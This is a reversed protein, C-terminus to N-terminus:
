PARRSADPNRLRRIESELRRIRFLAEDGSARIRDLMEAVVGVLFVAGLGRELKRANMGERITYFSGVLCDKMSVGDSLGVRVTRTVLAESNM